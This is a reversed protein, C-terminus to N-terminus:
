FDLLEMLEPHSLTLGLAWELVNGELEEALSMIDEETLGTILRADSLKVRKEYDTIECSLALSMMERGGSAIVLEDLELLCGEGTVAYTGELELLPYENGMSVSLAGNKPNYETEITVKLDDAKITIEDTFKGEKATHDGESEITVKEGDVKIELSINDVYRDGGGLYLGLEVKTGQIKEKYVIGAVKNSRVYVQLEIDGLIDLLEYVGSYDPQSYSYEFDYVLEEVIDEPLNMSSLLKEMMGVADVSGIDEVAEFWEELAEQPITVLFSRCKLSEGNVKLTTKGNKEIVLEKALDTSAEMLAQRNEEADGSYDKVIEMLDFINFSIDAAEGLSAGMDDLDRMLTETNVGYFDNLFDPAGLYIMEDEASIMATLLDASGLYVSAMMGMEREELNVDMDVQFGLGSVADSYYYLVDESVSNIKMDASISVAEKGAFEAAEDANWVDAVKSFEKITNRFATGVRVTPTGFIVLAVVLAIVLVAAGIGGGIILGKGPKKGPKKAAPKLHAGRGTPKPQPPAYPASGPSYTNRPQQSGSSQASQGAQACADRNLPNQADTNVPTYTPNFTPPQQVPAQPAAPRSAEPVTTGCFRCFKDNENLKCGCTKCVM